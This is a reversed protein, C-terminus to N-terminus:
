EKRVLIYMGKPNNYIGEINLEIDGEESVLIIKHIRGKELLRREYNNVMAQYAEDTPM